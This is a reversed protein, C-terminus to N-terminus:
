TALRRKPVWGPRPLADRLGRTYDSDPDTLIKETPGTEMIKGEAMVITRDCIQNVVALDHTIFLYTTGRTERIDSLLNLVQAQVSVDLASVAEDLVLVDPRAALARAIAVRQRQGGSLQTPSMPAHHEELGVELLLERTREAIDKKSLQEFLSISSSLIAQVSMRRDLSLYPDQFVMQVQRAKERRAKAGGRAKRWSGRFLIQGSTPTELGVIMRAVTTKGSGSQGVIAVSEGEEIEFSVDDVATFSGGPVSFAKTVNRVSLISM